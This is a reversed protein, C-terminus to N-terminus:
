KVVFGVSAYPAIYDLQVEDGLLQGKCNIFKIDTYKKDLKITTNMCEDAFFNGIWIAKETENEKCLMYCDPNGMM